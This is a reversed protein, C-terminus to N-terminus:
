SNTKTNQCQDRWFACNNGLVEKISDNIPIIAGWGGRKQKMFNIAVADLVAKKAECVLEHICNNCTKM